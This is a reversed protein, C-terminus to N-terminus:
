AQLPPKRRVVREQDDGDDLVGVVLVREARDVLPDRGQPGGLVVVVVGEHHEHQGGVDVQPVHLEAQGFSYLGFGFRSRVSASPTSCPNTPEIQM